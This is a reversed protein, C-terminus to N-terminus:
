TFKFFPPKRYATVDCSRQGATLMLFNADRRGAQGGVSDSKIKRSRPRKEPTEQIGDLQEPAVVSVAHARSTRQRNM